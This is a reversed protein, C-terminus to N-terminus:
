CQSKRQLRHLVETADYKEDYAAVEQSMLCYQKRKDDGRSDPKNHLIQKAKDLRQRSEDSLKPCSQVLERMEDINGMCYCVGDCGAELSYKAKEAVSGKLAHMDIADSILFGGFGIKERIIERIGKASQTLPNKDDVKSLLIHATMGMPSFNCVRFPEFEDDLEDLSKEIVPLGLHPDCVAWGHGPLHKICPIIGSSIYTKVSEKGLRGVVKVDSSFCRSRLADTTDDHMIDLVPAFNIDIGLKKLDRSILEAQLKAMKKAQTLPLEGIQKQAVYAMFEPEKLRRVRGGEQDVAILVEDGAAERIQKILEQVQGSNEINRAFLTIGAPRFAEFLRKEEDTLTKGACSLFAAGQEKDM